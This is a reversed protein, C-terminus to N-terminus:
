LSTAKQDVASAHVHGDEGVLEGAHVRGGAGGDAIGDGGEEDISAQLTRETESM